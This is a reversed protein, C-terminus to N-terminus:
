KYKILNATITTSTIPSVGYVGPAAWAISGTRRTTESSLLIADAHQERAAKALNGEDDTKVAGLLIYPRPPFQGPSFLPVNDVMRVYGGPGTTWQSQPGTWPSYTYGAGCGCFCLALSVPLLRLMTKMNGLVSMSRLDQMSVPLLCFKTKMM